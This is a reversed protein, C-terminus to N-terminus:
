ESKEVKKTTKAKKAKAAAEERQLAISRELTTPVRPKVAPAKYPILTSM